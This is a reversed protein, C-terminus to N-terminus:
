GTKRDERSPERPIRVHVRQHEYPRRLAILLAPIFALLLLGFPLGSAITASQLANLGGARLLVATVLGIATMWFLRQQWSPDRGNSTLTAVVLSGSDASTVFFVLVVLIAIGITATSLPLFELFNYLSSNPAEM